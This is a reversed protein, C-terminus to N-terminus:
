EDFPERIDRPARDVSSGLGVTEDREPPKEGLPPDEPEPLDPRVGETRPAANDSNQSSQAAPAPGAPANRIEASAFTLGLLLLPISVLGSVLRLSTM